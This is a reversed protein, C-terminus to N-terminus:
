RLRARADGDSTSRRRPRTRGPARPSRRRGPGPSRLPGAVSSARPRDSWAPSVAWSTRVGRSSADREAVRGRRPRARRAAPRRRRRQRVHQAVSRRADTEGSPRTASTRRCYGTSSSSLAGVEVGQLRETASARRARRQPDLHAAVQEEGELLRPPPRRASRSTAAATMRSTANPESTAMPRGIPIASKPRARPM